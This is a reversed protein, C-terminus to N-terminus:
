LREFRYGEASFTSLVRPLVSRLNRAASENDHFVVIAGPAAHRAVNDYCQEADTAPDFDGSLISWQVVQLPAAGRTLRRAQLPTIHGHPPRFLRSRILGRAQEIDNYYRRNATRWGDLHSYTHNGTSHGEDLIRRYLAPHREVQEGVCFFTGKAGFIRLQDLVFDTIGPFPGDDFTLFLVKEKTPVSWICPGYLSRIWRPKTVHYRM